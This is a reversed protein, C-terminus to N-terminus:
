TKNFWSEVLNLIEDQYNEEKINFFSVEQKNKWWTIQRKAYQFERLSWTDLCQTEEIKGELYKKVEKFGTATTAPFDKEPYQNVLSSVEHIAGQDFRKKVRTNIRAQLEDLNVTLGIKLHNINKQTKQKTEIPDNSLLVEIKRILRRPNNRDSNNMNEFEEFSLEKLWNQMQTVSLQYARQRISPEPKIKLRLSDSFIHQHYLGTGGVIIPLRNNKWSSKITNRAFNQFHSVSWEQNPKIISVGHLFINQTTAMYYPFEFSQDEKNLIFSDEQIDAGSIIELGQYVQRSDASILDAGSLLNLNILQNAIFLALDTKGTATPGVISILKKAM